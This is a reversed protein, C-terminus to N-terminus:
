ERKRLYRYYLKHELVSTKIKVQSVDQARCIHYIYKYVQFVIVTFPTDIPLSLLEAIFYVESIRLMKFL